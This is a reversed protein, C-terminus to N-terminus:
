QPVNRGGSAALSRWGSDARRGGANQRALLALVLAAVTAHVPWAGVAAPIQGRELLNEFISITNSYIFYAVVAVFLRGYRGERPSSRALPVALMGLVVISVVSSIRRQLEALHRTDASDFLAITALMSRARAARAKPRTDIWVGHRAFRTVSFEADGPLGAYRFGDELVMYRGADGPLVRQHAAASVLVYEQGPRRVRVFVDSMGGTEADVGEVYIVQHGGGFEKFRGPVFVQSEAKLKAEELLAFRIAAASPAIFMALAAGALAFGLVVWLVARSLRWIGVGGAGFAVVESDRYLRGLSFLVALYLALPLLVPLKEILKLALIELILEASVLGAAADSLYRTYRDAGYILVLVALVAACTQLVERYIYREIIVQM